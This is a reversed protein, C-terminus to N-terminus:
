SCLGVRCRVYKCATMEQLMWSAVDGVAIRNSGQPLLDAAELVPASGRPGEVLDPTCVLTWQRDSERMAQWTGMHARTIARFVEPFGPRENRLGGAPSDLIGAGAIALVRPVEHLHMARTINYMAQELILGPHKFDDAGLASLVAESGTVAREVGIADLVDGQFLELQPHELALKAPDRVFARVGHGAELAYDVLHRGTRGTAGFITLRM